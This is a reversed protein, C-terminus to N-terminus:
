RCKGGDHHHGEHFHEHHFDKHEEHHHEHHFHENWDRRGDAGTVKELEEDTLEFVPWGDRPLEDALFPRSTSFM